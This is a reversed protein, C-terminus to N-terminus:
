QEGRRFVYRNYLQDEDWYNAMVTKELTYGLRNLVFNAPKNHVAVEGIISNIDYTNFFYSLSLPFVKSLLSITGGLSDIKSHNRWIHFHMRVCENNQINNLLIHGLKRGDVNVIATAHIRDIPKTAIQKLYKPPHSRVFKKYNTNNIGLNRHYEDNIPNLWYDMINGIDEEALEQIKIKM